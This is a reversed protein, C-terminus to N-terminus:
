YSSLQGYTGTIQQLRYFLSDTADLVRSMGIAGSTFNWKRLSRDRNNESMNLWKALGSGHPWFCARRRDQTIYRVSFYHLGSDLNRPEKECEAWGGWGKCIALNLAHLEKALYEIEHPDAKVKDKSLQKTLKALIRKESMMRADKVYM